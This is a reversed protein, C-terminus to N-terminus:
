GLLIHNHTVAAATLAHLGVFGVVSDAASLTTSSDGHAVVYTNGGTTFSEAQGVTTALLAANVGASVSVEAGLAAITHTVTVGTFTLTDTATWTENAITSFVTASTLGTNVTNVYAHAAVLHLADTITNFGSGFNITDTNTTVNAGYSITLSEPAAVTGGNGITYVDAEVAIGRGVIIADSANSNSFNFNVASAVTDSIYADVAGTGTGTIALTTLGNDIFGFASLASGLSVNLTTIENFADTITLYDGGITFAPGTAGIADNNLNLALTTATPTTLNDFIALLVPAGTLGSVGANDVTLTTLANDIITSPFASDLGALIVSTITGAATLSAGNVDTIQVGADLANTSETQTVSVSTTASDGNVVIDAANAFSGNAETITVTGLGGNVTLNHGATNSTLIDTVTVTTTAAVTITDEAAANGQSNVNLATLGTWGQSGTTNITLAEASFFNATQIGSITVGPVSTPNYVGGTGGDYINIINGTFAGGSVTDGIALAGASYGYVTSNNYGIVISQGAVGTLVYSHTPTLAPQFLTGTTVPTGAAELNQYVIINPTTNNIFEQSQAFAALLQAATDGTGVWYALGAADPARQLVNEYFATVLTTNAPTTATANYLSNFETSSAFVTAIQALSVAGTGFQQVWYQEGAQDPVRDFAAQYERIVPNVINQTYPEFEISSIVTAPDLLLYANVNAQNLPPPPDFQIAAYDALVTALPTPM